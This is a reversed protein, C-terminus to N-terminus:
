CSLTTNSPTSFQFLLLSFYLSIFSTILIFFQNITIYQNISVKIEKVPYEPDKIFFSENGTKACKPAKRPECYHSYKQGYAASHSPQPYHQPEAFVGSFFHCELMVLIIKSSISFKVDNCYYIKRKLIYICSVLITAQM